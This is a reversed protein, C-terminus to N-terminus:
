QRRGSLPTTRTRRDQNAVVQTAKACLRGFRPTQAARRAPVMPKSRKRGDEQPAKGKLLRSVKRVSKDLYKSIVKRKALWDRDAKTSKRYKRMKMGVNQEKEAIKRNFEDRQTLMIKLSQIEAIMETRTLVTEQKDRSRHELKALEHELPEDPAEPDRPEGPM